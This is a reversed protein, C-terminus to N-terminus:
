YLCLLRFVIELLGQTVLSPFFFLISMPGIALVKRREKVMWHVHSMDASPVRSLCPSGSEVRKCRCPSFLFSVRGHVASIAAKVQWCGRSVPFLLAMPQPSLLVVDVVHDCHKRQGVDDAAAAPIQWQWGELQQLCGGCKFTKFLKNLVLSIM